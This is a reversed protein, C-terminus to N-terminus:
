TYDHFKKNVKKGDTDTKDKYGSYAKDIHKKLHAFAGKLKLSIDDVVKKLEEDASKRAASKATSFLSTLWWPKKANKEMAKELQDALVSKTNEKMEGGNALQGSFFQSTCYGYLLNFNTKYQKFADSHIVCKSLSFIMQDFAKISTSLDKKAKSSFNHIKLYLDYLFEDAKFRDGKGIRKLRNFWSGSYYGVFELIGLIQGV